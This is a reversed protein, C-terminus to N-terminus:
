SRRPRRRRVAPAQEHRAHLRAGRPRDDPRDALGRRADRAGQDDGRRDGPLLGPARAQGQVPEQGQRQQQATRRAEPGHRPLHHAAGAGAARQPEPQGQHARHGAAAGAGDRRDRGVAAGRGPDRRQRDAHVDVEDLNGEVKDWYNFNKVLVTRVSPQREKLRFPGTGNAKFSATNEIGKRRDVPKEAKNDECWKKSMIALVTLTDPLIPMPAVTEIDVTYDDVKRVEKIPATYGRMDSGPDTARKFSFIVDDATFPLATTSNSARACTSAGSRRVSTQTWKTALLPAVSMDKGRAVLSEYVNGMFSLQLSENLSHPDMSQVDGQDSVRLTVAQAAGAALLALAAVSMLHRRIKM